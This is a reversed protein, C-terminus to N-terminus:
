EDRTRRAEACVSASGVSLRRLAMKVVELATLIKQMHQRLQGMVATGM